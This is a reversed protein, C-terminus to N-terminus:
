GQSRNLQPQNAGGQGKEVYTGTVLEFDVLPQRVATDPNYVNYFLAAVEKTGLQVGRVGMQFLGNQVVNVRNQIESKAKDYADKDIRIHVHKETSFLSSFLNKSTNVASTMDDAPYYPVVIYFSKDM